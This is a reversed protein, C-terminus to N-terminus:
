GEEPVAPLRLVFRTPRQPSALVLEGGHEEAIRRAIALGLGTGEPKTSVYPEFLRSAITEPVGPGDDEVIFAVADTADRRACARVSGPPAEGVAALANELLNILVQKVLDADALCVLDARPLVVRVEPRPRYLEAVEALIDRASVPAPKPTPLRAMRSFDNVLRELRRVQATITTCARRLVEVEPPPLKDALRRMLREAALRVPTLPNKIEHALRRAVEAWARAEEARALDTIDAIVFLAGTFAGKGAAEIWVAHLSVRRTGEGTELDREHEIRGHGEALEAFAEKLFVLRGQAQEALATGPVWPRPLALTKALAENILRIRGAADVLLVGVDLRALLAELIQQRQRSAGLAEALERHAREVASLNRALREAMANFARALEAIEDHGRVPARVHVDGEAVRALAEALAGVPAAIRRAFWGAVLMGLGGALVGVFLTAQVFLERLAARDRALLRYKRFDREIARASRAVQTDPVMAVRVLGAFVGGFRVPAHALVREGDKTTVVEVTTRGLRAALRAGETWPLSDLLPAGKAGVGVVLRGSADFVEAARWGHRRALRALVHVAAETDGSALVANVIEPRAALARADRLADSRIRAYFGQAITLAEALLREVRVDFWIAMGKDVIATAAGQTILLPLIVFVGIAAQLKIRLREGAGPPGKHALWFAQGLLAIAGTGLLLVNIWALWGGRWSEGPWAHWALM